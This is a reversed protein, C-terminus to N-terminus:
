RVRVGRTPPQTCLWAVFRAVGDHALLAAVTAYERDLQENSFTRHLFRHCAACLLATPLSQVPQGRRRGRSRPVLHHETLLPVARGCLACAPLPEAAHPWTPPPLRRAM